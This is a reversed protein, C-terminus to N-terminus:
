FAKALKDIKAFTLFQKINPFPIVSGQELLNIPLKFYLEIKIEKGKYSKLECGAFKMGNKKILNISPLNNEWVSAVMIANLKEFNNFLNKLIWFGFGSGIYKSQLFIVGEVVYDCNNYKERRILGSVGIYEKLDSHWVKKLGYDKKFKKKVELLFIMAIHLDRETKPVDCAFLTSTKMVEPDTFLEKLL